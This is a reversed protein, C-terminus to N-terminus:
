NTLMRIKIAFAEQPNKVMLQTIEEKTFGQNLMQPILHKQIADFPRIARGTPFSNGDHSLLVRNLLGLDKFHKLKEIYESINSDKVGDLSIWAGKKAATFLLSQDEINNAHVWIWASPSVNYESLLRLQEAAAMPNNGTHVVITLGTALHTHLGAEFLKLDIESPTGNDFGLKIFGPKISTHDIGNIFEDIWIKSIDEASQNFAFEPVYKDNSAGYFGTNTIIQIGTSDAIEKLLAANRGFYVTTCEFLSQVGQAKIEKLYPIVQGFLAVKDYKAEFSAEAGFNSMVHEHTLVFGLNEIDVKGNVSFIYGGNEIQRGKNYANSCTLLLLTAVIIAKM